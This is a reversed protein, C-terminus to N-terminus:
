LQRVERELELVEEELLGQRLAATSNIKSFTGELPRSLRNPPSAFELDRHFTFIQHPPPENVDFDELSVLLRDSPM